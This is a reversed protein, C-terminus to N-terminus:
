CCVQSIGERAAYLKQLIVLGDNATVNGVNLPPPPIIYASLDDNFSSVPLQSPIAGKNSVTSPVNVTSLFQGMEPNDGICKRKEEAIWRRKTETLSKTANNSAM